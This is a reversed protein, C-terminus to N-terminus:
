PAKIIFGDHRLLYYNSFVFGYADYTKEFKMTIPSFLQITESNSFWLHNSLPDFGWRWLGNIYPLHVERSNSFFASPSQPPHSVDYVKIYNEEPNERYDPVGNVSMVHKSDPLFYIHDGLDIQGIQQFGGQVHQFVRGIYDEDTFSLNAAFYKGDPSITPISWSGAHSHWLIKENNMDIVVSRNIGSFMRATVLGNESANGLQFRPPFSLSNSISLPLSIEHLQIKSFDLPDFSMIGRDPDIFYGKSENPSIIISNIEYIGLNNFILSDELVYGNLDYRFIGRDNQILIKHNDKLMIFREFQEFTPEARLHLSGEIQQQIYGTRHLTYKVDADELYDLKGISIEGSSSFPYTKVGEFEFPATISLIVGEPNIAAKTWVLKVIEEEDKILSFDPEPVHLQKANITVDFKFGTARLNHYQYGGVFGKDIFHNVNTDYIITDKFYPHGSTNRRFRYVFNKRDQPGKWRYVLYGDELESTFSHFEPVTPDIIVRFTKNIVYYEGGLLNALSRSRTDAYFVMELLHEKPELFDPNMSFTVAGDVIDAKILNGNLRVETEFIANNLEQLTFRFNTREMLYFPQPLESDNILLTVERLSPPKIDLHFEEELEYTCQSFIFTALCIWAITLGKNVHSKNM